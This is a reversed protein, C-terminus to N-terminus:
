LVACQIRQFDTPNHGSYNKFFRSFHSSTDFNMKDAIEKISLESACLWYSAEQYLRHHIHHLPALGTEQKIVESLHKATVFLLDAYEQVTRLTLFREDILKRFHNLLQQSRNVPVAVRAPCDSSSRNAEYLLEVLLLRLMQNHFVQNSLFEHELRKFLNLINLFATEEPKCIAAQDRNVTLLNDLMGGRFLGEELFNMKFRLVFLHLDDCAGEYTLLSQPAILHITGPTVQFHSHDVMGNCSGELCIVMVYDDTKKNFLSTISSGRYQRIDFSQRMAQEGIPINKDILQDQTTLFSQQGTLTLDLTNTLSEM